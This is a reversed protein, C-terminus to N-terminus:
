YIGPALYAQRKVSTNLFIQLRNLANTFKMSVINVINVINIRIRSREETVKLIFFFYKKKYSIRLCM